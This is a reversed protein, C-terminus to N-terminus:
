NLCQVQLFSYPNISNDKEIREQNEGMELELFSSCVQIQWIYLNADAPIKEFIEPLMEKLVGNWCAKELQQEYSFYHNNGDKDKECWEKAAFSTGTVLLIEQKVSKTKM